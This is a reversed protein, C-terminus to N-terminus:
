GIALSDNQILIRDFLKSEWREPCLFFLYVFFPWAGDLGVTKGFQCM